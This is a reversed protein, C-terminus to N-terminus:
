GFYKKMLKDFTGNDKLTKIANEVKDKLETDNKRFGIGFEELEFGVDVFTLDTYSTGEGVMVQAMLKDIVAVKNADTKVELLTDKQATAGLTKSEEVGSSKVVSEGASGTEFLVTGAKKLDEITKYNEAVSKQCVVVQKNELYPSSLTLAEKLEKTITMGNWIIDIEKANISMVKNEWEIEVFEIDYNLLKGVERALDADFGVWEVGNCSKGGVAEKYDMPKYDTVGIKLVGNSNCGGCATLGFCGLMILIASFLVSLFKKM